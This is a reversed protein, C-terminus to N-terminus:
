QVSCYSYRGLVCPRIHYSSIIIWKTDILCWVRQPPKVDKLTLSCTWMFIHNPCWCTGSLTLPPCHQVAMSEVGTGTREEAGHVDRHVWLDPWRRAGPPAWAAAMAQKRQVRRIEGDFEYSGAVCLDSNIWIEGGGLGVCGSKWCSPTLRAKTGNELVLIFKFFFKRQKCMETLYSM